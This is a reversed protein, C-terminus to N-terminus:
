TVLDGTDVENEDRMRSLLSKLALDETDIKNEDRMRSHWSKLALYETDFKTRSSETPLIDLIKRLM